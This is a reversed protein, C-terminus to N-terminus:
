YIVQQLHYILKLIRPNGEFDSPRLIYVDKGKSTSQNLGRAQALAASLPINKRRLTISTPSSAEGLVFVQSLSNDPMHIVDGSKLYIYNQLQSNRTLYEYDILYSYGDRTFNISTLDGLPEQGNTGYPNANAIIENLTMPVSTIPITGVQSFSGSVIVKQSKFESVSVDVQPNNLVESM